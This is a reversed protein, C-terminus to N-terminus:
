LEVSDRLTGPGNAWDSNANVRPTGNCNANADCTDSLTCASGDDCAFPLPQPSNVCGLSSNCSAFLCTNSPQQCVVGSGGACAGAGDCVEGTTCADADDCKTGAVQFPNSCIGTQTDCAGVKFCQGLATCGVPQAGTCVGAQCTDSQTCKNGDDCGTNNPLAPNSCAGTKADCTGPKHCQDSASC